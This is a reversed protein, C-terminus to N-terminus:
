LVDGYTVKNRAGTFLLDRSEVSVLQLAPNQPEPVAVALEEPFSSSEAVARHHGSYIVPYRLDLLAQQEYKSAFRSWRREVVARSIYDGSESELRRQALRALGSIKIM